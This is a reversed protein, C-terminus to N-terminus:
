VEIFVVTLNPAPGEILGDRVFVRDGINAEGRAQVQSNDPLAITAVGNGFAVVDGVLQPPDPLISKLLKYPNTM